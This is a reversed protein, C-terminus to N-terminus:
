KKYKLIPALFHDKRWIQRLRDPPKIKVKVTEVHEFGLGHLYETFKSGFHEAADVYFTLVGNEKLLNRNVISQIFVIGDRHVEELDLPYGDYIIGDFQRGRFNQIVEHWDGELVELNPEKRANAALKENLEIVTHKNLKRKKRFAEIEKDIIGLGYGVNLIDGGNQTVIDALKKMYPLQYDSMVEHGLLKLITENDYTKIVEPKTSAWKQKLDYTYLTKRKNISHKIESLNDTMYLTNSHDWIEKNQWITVYIDQLLNSLKEDKIIIAFGDNEDFYM